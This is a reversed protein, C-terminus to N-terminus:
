RGLICEQNQIGCIVESSLVSMYNVLDNTKLSKITSTKVSIYPSSTKHISKYLKM